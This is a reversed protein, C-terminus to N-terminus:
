ATAAPGATCEELLLPAVEELPELPELLELLELPPTDLPLEEPAVEEVPLEEPLPEEPLLEDPPPEDLLEPALVAACVPRASEQGVAFAV